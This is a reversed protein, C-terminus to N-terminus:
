IRNKRRAAVGLAGGSVLVLAILLPLSNVDGTKPSTSTGATGNNSPQQTTNSGTQASAVTFETTATGTTSVISITHKGVSLTKLYDANLTVITSGEKVTYNSADLDKGDVQVKVFNAFAANSTITLGSGSAQEWASNAGSVIEPTQVPAQATKYEVLMSIYMGSGEDEFAVPFSVSDATCSSATAGGKIRASAGDYGKPLPVTLTGSIATGEYNEFPISVNYEVQIDYGESVPGYWEMEEMPYRYDIALGQYENFEGISVTADTTFTATLDSAPSYDTDEGELVRVPLNIPNAAFATAPMLGMLLCLGLLMAGLKSKQTRKETKM